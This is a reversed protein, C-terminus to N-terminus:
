SKKMNQYYMKIKNNMTKVHKKNLNNQEIWYDVTKYGFSNLKLVIAEFDMSSNRIYQKSKKLIYKNEEMFVLYTNIVYKQLDPTFSDYAFGIIKDNNFYLDTKELM